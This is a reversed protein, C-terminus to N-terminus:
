RDQRRAGPSGYRVYPHGRTTEHIGTWTKIALEPEEHPRKEARNGNRTEKYLRAAEARDRPNM